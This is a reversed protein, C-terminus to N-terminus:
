CKVLELKESSKKETQGETQLHAFRFFSDWIPENPVAFNECQKAKQMFVGSPKFETINPKHYPCM